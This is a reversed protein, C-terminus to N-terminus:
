KFGTQGEANVPNRDNEACVFEMLSWDRERKFAYYRRVPAELAEPDDLTMEVMLTEPDNAALHIRETIHLKDSHKLGGDIETITKIGVTDVVLTDGEWKGVSHGFIGPELDDPHPRGDTFITRNQMWAEHLTTVRGPTFLFEMPYQGTAMMRPMGPPMCNSTDKRAMGNNERSAKQWAELDAKYKGKPKVPDNAPTGQPKRQSLVWVGGWDPLKDLASYAGKPWAAGSKAAGAPQAAPIAAAGALCSGALM